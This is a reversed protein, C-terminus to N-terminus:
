LKPGAVSARNVKPTDAFIKALAPTRTDRTAYDRASLGAIIDRQDPDAKAALLTRVLGLDRRQM